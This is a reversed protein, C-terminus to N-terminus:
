GNVAKTKSNRIFEFMADKVAKMSRRMKSIDLEARGTEYRTKLVNITEDGEFEFLVTKANGRLGTLQIGQAHLYSAEYIDKTLFKM